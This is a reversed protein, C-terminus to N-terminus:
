AVKSDSAVEDYRRPSVFAVQAHVLEVYICEQKMRECWSPVCAQILEAKDDDCAITYLKSTDHFDDGHPGRWTGTVCSSTFGGAIDLIESEIGQRVIELSAGDNDFDPLIISLKNTSQM